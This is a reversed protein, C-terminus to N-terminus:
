NLFPCENSNYTPYDYLITQGLVTFSLTNIQIQCNIIYKTFKEFLANLTLNYASM